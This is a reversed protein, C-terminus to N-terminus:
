PRRERLLWDEIRTLSARVTDMNRALGTTRENIERVTGELEKLEENTPMHEMHARIETIQEAQKKLKGDVDDRLADVAVAAAEGPKRLWLVATLGCNWLVVGLGIWDRVNDFNM